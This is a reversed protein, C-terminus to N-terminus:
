FRWLEREPAADTQGSHGLFVLGSDRDARVMSSKRLMRSGETPVSLFAFMPGARHQFRNRPTYVADGALAPKRAKM